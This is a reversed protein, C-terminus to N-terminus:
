SSKGADGPVEEATGNSYDDDIIEAGVDPGWDVLPPQADPGLRKMEAVIEDITLRKRVPSLRISSGDVVMNLTTGLEVGMEELVSKPLRVAASNGWKAIQVKM